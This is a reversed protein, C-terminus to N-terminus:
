LFYLFLLLPQNFYLNHSTFNSVHYRSNEVHICRVFFNSQKWRINEGANWAKSLYTYVVNIQELISERTLYKKIMNRKMEESIHYTFRTM